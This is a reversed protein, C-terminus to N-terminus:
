PSHHGRRALFSPLTVPEGGRACSEQLPIGSTAVGSPIFSTVQPCTLKSLHVMPTECLGREEQFYQPVGFVATGDLPLTGAHPLLDM